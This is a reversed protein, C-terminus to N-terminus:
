SWDPINLMSPQTHSKPAYLASGMLTLLGADNGPSSGPIQFSDARLQKEAFCLGIVAKRRTPSSFLLSCGPLHVQLCARSRRFITLLFANNYPKNDWCDSVHLSRCRGPTGPILTSTIQPYHGHFQVIKSGHSNRGKLEDTGM